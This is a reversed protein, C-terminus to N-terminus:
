IIEEMFWQFQIKSDFVSNFDSLLHKLDGHFIKWTEDLFFILLVRTFFYSTFLRKAPTIEGWMFAM